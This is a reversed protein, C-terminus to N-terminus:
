SVAVTASTKWRGDLAVIGDQPPLDPNDFVLISYSREHWDYAKQILQDHFGVSVLYNGQLLPLRDVSFEVVGEDALRLAIGAQRTNQGFVYALSDSRYMAMSCSVDDVPASTAYRLRVTLPDGTRFSEAPKGGAGLFSVETITVEGSGFRQNPLFVGQHDGPHGHVERLYAGVVDLSDGSERVQGHEIWAARACMSRITDLSHSVLVITRGEARLDSIRQYCRMQFSEDGVSLVEDVLLIDPDVAVAVSFALRAFMGTSYNKVPMDMFEGVGAFEVIEDYRADVDRRSLGILSGSLYVNERGTLEPHFGTGLELLSSVTGNLEVTGKNPTLIRAMTKLLTSKGSGNAGILGFTSGVPVEVDVDKLAWFEEYRNRRSLIKEKLTHSRQHYIRYSKWVGECSIAIDAM